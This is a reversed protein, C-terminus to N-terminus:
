RASYPLSTACACCCSSRSCGGALGQAVGAALLQEAEVNAYSIRGQRDVTAFAEAGGLAGGMAKGLTGTIIDIRGSVGCNSVGTYPVTKPPRAATTRRRLAPSWSMRRLRTKRM